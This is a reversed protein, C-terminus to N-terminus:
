VGGDTHPSADIGLLTLVPVGLSKTKLWALLYWRPLSSKERQLMYVYTSTHVYFCANPFYPKVSVNRQHCTLVVHLVSFAEYFFFSLFFFLGATLALEGISFIGSCLVPTNSGSKDKRFWLGHQNLLCFKM